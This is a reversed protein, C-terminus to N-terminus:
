KIKDILDALDYDKQTIANESYTYIEIAVYRYWYIKINPHHNVREAISAVKNVFEIAESFNNFEFKQVLKNKKEIIKKM